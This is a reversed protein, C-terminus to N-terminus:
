PTGQHGYPFPLKATAAQQVRAPRRHRHQLAKPIPRVMRLRGRCEYCRLAPSHRYQAWAVPLSVAWHCKSCRFEIWALAM